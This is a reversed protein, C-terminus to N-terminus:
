SSCSYHSVGGANFFQKPKLRDYKLALDPALEDYPNSFAAQLEEIATFDGQGAQEYAPSVLWERWTIRPNIRKMAAATEHPQGNSTIQDRWRGLWSSWQRDLDDSRQLYCSEQLACLQRENDSETEAALNSLKRFFITFDVKARLMLPLLDNMLATDYHKLGLKSAWM